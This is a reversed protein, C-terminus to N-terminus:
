NNHLHSCLFLDCTVRVVFINRTELAVTDSSSEEGSEPRMQQRIFRTADSWVTQLRSVLPAVAGGIQSKASAASSGPSGGGASRMGEWSSHLALQHASASRKVLPRGMEDFAGPFFVAPQSTHPDLYILEDGARAHSCHVFARQELLAASASAFSLAGVYGVFWLAHNPRGGLIGVSQELRFTEQACM